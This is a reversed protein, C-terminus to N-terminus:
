SHLLAGERSVRFSTGHWGVRNIGFSAVFLGFSLVDGVPILWWKGASKGTASDLSLKFAVRAAFVTGILGLVLPSPGLAAAAILILPLPHTIISGAYGGPDIQRVTRGWRLDRQVLDGATREDCLHAVTMPPISIKLGLARVARGMEYDDALHDVFAAFGGIRSLTESRMAITAGFCPEALRATKGLIASPLFRYNIAMASLRSWFAGHDQGVYLCSVLGVGPQALASAVTSAYARDVLIDADSLILVEHKARAAINVLNTAKRNAGHPTSDIVLDIDIDPHARQLARVIAVAPDDAGHVGLVIQMQGAYDQTCFGELTERLGAPAGHLPKLITIAPAYAEPGRPRRLAMVTALAAVLLYVVGLLSLGLALWGLAHIIQPATSM